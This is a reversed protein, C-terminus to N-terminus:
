SNSNPNPHLQSHLHHQPLVVGSQISAIWETLDSGHTPRQVQDDSYYSKLAIPEAPSLIHGSAPLFAPVGLHPAPIVNAGGGADKPPLAGFQAGRGNFEPGFSLTLNGLPVESTSSSTTTTTAGNETARGNATRKSPGVSNSSRSQSATGTTPSPLPMVPQPLEGSNNSGSMSTSMEPTLGHSHPHAYMSNQADLNMSSASWSSTQAANPPSLLFTDNPSMTSSTTPNSPMAGGSAAMTAADVAASISREFFRPSVTSASVSSRKGTGVGVGGASARRGSRMTAASGTHGSGSKNRSDHTSAINTVSSASSTSSPQKDGDKGIMRNPSTRKQKKARPHLLPIISDDWQLSLQSRIGPDAKILSDISIQVANRLQRILQSCRHGFSLFSPLSVSTDKVSAEIEQLSEDILKTFHMVTPWCNTEDSLGPVGRGKSRILLLSATALTMSPETLYQYYWASGQYDLFRNQLRRLERAGTISRLASDTAIHRSTALEGNNIRGNPFFFPRHLSGRQWAITLSVWCRRRPRFPDKADVSTDPADYQYSPALQNVISMIQGDTQMVKRHMPAGHCLATSVLQAIKAGQVELMSLTPDSPSGCATWPPADSPGDVSFHSENILPRTNAGVAFAHDYGYVLWALRRRHDLEFPNLTGGYGPDEFLHSATAARIAVDWRPFEQGGTGHLGQSTWFAFASINAQVLDITYEELRVCEEILSPIHHVCLTLARVRPNDSELRVPGVRAPGPRSAPLLDAISDPDMTELTESLICALLALRSLDGSQFSVGAMSSKLNGASALTKCPLVVRLWLDKMQGELLDQATILFKWDVHWLYHRLLVTLQNWDPVISCFTSIIEICQEEVYRRPLPSPPQPSANSTTASPSADPSDHNNNAQDEDLSLDRLLHNLFATIPHEPAVPFGERQQPDPESSSSRDSTELFASIEALSRRSQKKQLTEPDLDSTSFTKCLHKVKRLYCELCVTPQGLKRRSSGASAVPPM